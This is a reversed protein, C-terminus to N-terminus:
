RRFQNYWSIAHLWLWVIDFADNITLTNAINIHLRCYIYIEWGKCCSWSKCYELNWITITNKHCDVISLDMTCAHLVVFPNSCHYRIHLNYACYLAVTMTGKGQWMFKVSNNAQTGNGARLAVEITLVDLSWIAFVTTDKNSNVISINRMVYMFNISTYIRLSIHIHYHALGELMYIPWHVSYGSLSYNKCQIYINECLHIHTLHSNNDSSCTM